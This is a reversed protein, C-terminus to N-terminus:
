QKVMALKVALGIFVMGAIKNMLLQARNSKNLMNGISGALLAISGFVIITSLIFLGGLILIQITVNGRLPDAFQPLFALFFISVKPNTINMIIGRGYLKFLSVESDSDSNIKEAPARLIQWALWALYGAGVFKLLTFAITSTQFIVAVGLAVATSHFILGTCLGSMVVLGSQKGKVVSQTLVFINDPGPVLALIVSATFFTFITEIPIM